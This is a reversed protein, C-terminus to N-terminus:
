LRATYEVDNKLGLVGRAELTPPFLDQPEGNFIQCAGRKCTRCGIYVPPAIVGSKIAGIGTNSHKLFPLDNRNLWSASSNWRPIFALCLWRFCQLIHVQTM